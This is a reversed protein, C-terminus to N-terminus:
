NLQSLLLANHALLIVFDDFALAPRRV